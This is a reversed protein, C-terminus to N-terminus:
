PKSPNYNASFMSRVSQTVNSATQLPNRIANYAAPVATGFAWSAANKGLFKTAKFANRGLTSSIHGVGGAIAGGLVGTLMSSSQTGMISSAIQPALMQFNISLLSLIYMTNIAVLIEEASVSDASIKATVAKVVFLMLGLSFSAVVLTFISSVIHKITSFTHGRTCIPFLM